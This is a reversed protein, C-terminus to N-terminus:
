LFTAFVSDALLLGRQTLQWRGAPCRLLGDRCLNDIHPFIAGLEDGFREAFASAPFGDLCRLGLFVFEGRAQQADLQEATQRAHGQQEASRLYAPPSKENSWRTGWGSGNSPRVYSHAGAGIGLYAGSRWYNLNHRCARGPRAYNSIEYQEYGATGLVEQTCTFMAVDVDEPLERLMGQARWLHFPTGEEYTLNYASMHDPELASAQVLDDQWERLTQNPLGYILDLSVNEFHAARALHIAGRAEDADHIRGLTRLHHAAFSQVGFSMRNVGAARYGELKAREVTGPNAEVTVEINAALRWLRASEALVAGISEPAFLSPTGGGFFITSIEGGCWPPLTAYHRLEACLAAVYRQEPWRQVAYSNFDCYPCKAHCYPIHVYLAFKGM